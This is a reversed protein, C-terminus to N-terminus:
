AIFATQGRSRYRIMLAIALSALILVVFGSLLYGLMNSEGVRLETKFVTPKEAGMSVQAMYRRGFELNTKLLVTGSPYVRPRLHVLTRTASDPDGEKPLAFLRVDLPINRAASELLDFVMIAAGTRPFTWCYQTGVGPEYASFHLTFKGLTIICEDLEPSKGGHASVSQTAACMLILAIRMAKCPRM